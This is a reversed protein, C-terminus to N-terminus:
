GGLTGGGSDRVQRHGHGGDRRWSGSGRGALGLACPQSGDRSLSKEELHARGELSRGFFLKGSDIPSPISPRIGTPYTPKTNPPDVISIAVDHRRLSPMRGRSKRLCREPTWPHRRSLAEPPLAVGSARHARQRVKPRFTGTLNRRACLRGSNRGACVTNWSAVVREMFSQVGAGHRLFDRPM